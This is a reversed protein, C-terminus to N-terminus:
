YYKSPATRGFTFRGPPQAGTEEPGSALAPPSPSPSKAPSQAPSKAPEAGARRSETYFKYLFYAGVLIVAIILILKWNVGGEKKPSQGRERMQLAEALTADLDAPPAGPPLPQASGPPSYAKPQYELNKLPLEEFNIDVTVPVAHDAKLVLYYNQYLNKDHTVTGSLSGKVDQYQLESGDDLTNQDAVVLKFNDGNPAAVTFDAKFNTSDGNIDILQKITDITISKQTSMKM